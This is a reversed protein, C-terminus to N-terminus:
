DRETPGTIEGHALSTQVHIKASLGPALGVNTVQLLAAAAVVAATVRAVMRCFCLAWVTPQRTVNQGGKGTM